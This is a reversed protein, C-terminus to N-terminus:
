KQTREPIELTQGAYILNPDSGIVSRNKDYLKPWYDAIQQPTADKGLIRASIKWLSDGPKTTIVNKKPNAKGPSTEAQTRPKTTTAPATPSDAQPLTPKLPASTVLPNGQWGWVVDQDDAAFAPTTISSVLLVAGASGWLAKRLAPMTIKFLLQIGHRRPSVKAIVTAAIVALGSTLAWILIIAAILLLPILTVALRNWVFNHILLQTVPALSGGSFAVILFALPVNWKDQKTETRTLEHYNM